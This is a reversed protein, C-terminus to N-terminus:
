DLIYIKAQKNTHPLFKKNEMSRVGVFVEFSLPETRYIDRTRFTVDLTIEGLSDAHRRPVIGHFTVSNYSLQSEHLKMRHLTEIYLINISSGGDM